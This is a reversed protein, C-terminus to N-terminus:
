PLFRKAEAAIRAVDDSARQFGDSSNIEGSGESMAIDSLVNDLWETEIGVFVDITRPFVTAWPDVSNRRRGPLVAMLFVRDVERASVL